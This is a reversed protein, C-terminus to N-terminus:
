NSFLEVFRLPREPILVCARAETSRIMFSVSDAPLLPKQSSYEIGLSREAGSYQPDTVGVGNKQTLDFLRESSEAERVRVVYGSLKPILDDLRNPQSASQPCM